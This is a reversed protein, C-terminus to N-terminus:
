VARQAFIVLLLICGLTERSRCVSNLRQGVLVCPMYFSGREQLLRLEVGVWICVFVFVADRLKNM